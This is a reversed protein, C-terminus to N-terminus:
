SFVIKIIGPRRYFGTGTCSTTIDFLIDSDCLYCHDDCGVGHSDLSYAIGVCELISKAECLAQCEGPTLFHKLDHYPCYKGAVEQSWLNETVINM